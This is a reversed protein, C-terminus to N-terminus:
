FGADREGVSPRKQNHLPQREPSTKKGKEKGRTKKRQSTKIRQGLRSFRIPKEPPLIGGLHLGLLDLSHLSPLRHSKGRPMRHITHYVVFLDVRSRELSSFVSLSSFRRLSLYLSDQGSPMESSSDRAPVLIFSFSSECLSYHTFFIPLSVGLPCCIQHAKICSTM